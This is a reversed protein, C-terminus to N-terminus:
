LSYSGDAGNGSVPMRAVAWSAALLPIAFFIFLAAMSWSNTALLGGVYPGAVAGFRGIGIAWGVGTTRIDAPYIRAAVAYLGSFGGQAFFGILFTLGLLVLIESPALGFLIMFIAGFVCFVSIVQSLRKRDAIFGLSVVGLIAGFNLAIGAQLGQSVPFGSDVFLKPVWSILFYLTFYTLLFALWLWFTRLRYGPSLLSSPSATLASDVPPLAELPEQRIRLLTNNVKELSGTGGRRALFQLSEPLLILVLPLMALSIFGGVAFLTTWGYSPLIWSALFGGFTAGCPYGAQVVGIAFNRHRKPTFESVLSTLSALMSGIGIGTLFRWVMLQQIDSAGAAAFMTLSILILAGIIMRRRGFVDTLPALALAGLMMGALGAGFLVGLTAMSVQWSSSIAPAAYAIAVIDYGDQLNLLFCIAIVVMQLSTMPAADIKEEIVM